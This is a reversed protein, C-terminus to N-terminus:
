PTRRSGSSRIAAACRAPLGAASRVVSPPMESDPLPWGREGDLHVEYPTMTGPELGDCKVLAFHHQEVCFTRAECGLASVTCPADTEVWILAETEGAYRLAPGLVLQAM